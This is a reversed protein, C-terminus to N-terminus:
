LLIDQIRNSRMIKTEVKSINQKVDIKEKRKMLTNWRNRLDNDTRKSFYLKIFYTWKHGHEEVLRLLTEDESPTFPSRNIQPDLYNKCHERIYRAPRRIMKSIHEFSCNNKLCCLILENEEKSFRNKSYEANRHSCQYNISSSSASQSSINANSIQCFFNSFASDKQIFCLQHAGDYRKNFCHM